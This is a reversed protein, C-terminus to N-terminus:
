ARVNNTHELLVVIIGNVYGLPGSYAPFWLLVAIRDLAFAFWCGSSHPDYKVTIILENQARSEYEFYFILITYYITNLCMSFVKLVEETPWCVMINLSCSKRHIIHTNQIRWGVSMTGFLIATISNQYRRSREYLKGSSSSPFFFLLAKLKQEQWQKEM